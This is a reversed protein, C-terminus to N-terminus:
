AKIVSSYHGSYKQRSKSPLKMYNGYLAKLIGDYGAPAPFSYDEFKMMVTESFLKKDVIKLDPTLLYSDGTKGSKLLTHFKRNLQRIDSKLDRLSVDKMFIALFILRIRYLFTGARFFGMWRKHEAHTLDALLKEDGSGFDELTFIDVWVGQGPVPRYGREFAITESDVVKPWYCVFNQDADTLIRFRSSARKPFEKMFVDFDHRTMWIDVDDDWPIFGQHRVAGLLTGYALTYNVGILSCVRDIELLVDLGSRKIESPTLKRGSM